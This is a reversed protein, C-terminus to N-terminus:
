CSKEVAQFVRLVNLGAVKKLDEHTYGRNALELLLAPYKSVDELGQVEGHFGDFDSGIGV